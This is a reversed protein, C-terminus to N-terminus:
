NTSIGNPHTASFYLTLVTRRAPKRVAAMEEDSKARAPWQHINIGAKTNPELSILTSGRVSTIKMDTVSGLLLVPTILKERTTQPTIFMKAGMKAAKM